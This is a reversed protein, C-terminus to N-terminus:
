LNLESPSYKKYYLDVTVFKGLNFPECNFYDM